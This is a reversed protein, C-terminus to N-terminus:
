GTSPGTLGNGTPLPQLPKCQLRPGQATLPPAFTIGRRKQERVIRCQILMELSLVWRRECVQGCADHGGDSQAKVDDSM